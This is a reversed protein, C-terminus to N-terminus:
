SATAGALWRTAVRTLWFVVAVVLAVSVMLVISLAAGLPWDLDLTFQQAILSGFMFGDRGGLLAPTVYDGACLVFSLAFAFAASRLTLPLVVRRFTTGPSAGLDRSAALLQTDLAAFGSAIPLVCLPVSFNTLALLVAWRTNAITAFVDFLGFAGISALIGEDGLLTRWAFIRVLFGGFLALLSIVLVPRHWRPLVITACYVLAFAITTAIGAALLANTLTKVLLSLNGTGSVAESLAGLEFAPEFRLDDREFVSYAALLVVPALAIVALLVALALRLAPRLRDPLVTM